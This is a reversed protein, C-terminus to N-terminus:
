TKDGNDHDNNHHHYGIISSSSAALQLSARTQVQGLGLLWSSTSGAPLGNLQRSSAMTRSNAEPVSGPGGFHGFHHSRYGPTQSLHQKIFPWSPRTTKDTNRGQEATPSQPTVQTVSGCRGVTQLSAPQGRLLRAAATERKFRFCGPMVLDAFSSCLM